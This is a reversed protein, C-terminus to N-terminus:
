FLHMVAIDHDTEDFFDIPGNQTVKVLQALKLIIKVYTTKDLFCDKISVSQMVKMM